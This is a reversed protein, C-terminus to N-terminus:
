SGSRHTASGPSVVVITPSSQCHKHNTFSKELNCKRKTQLFARISRSKSCLGTDPCQKMTAAGNYGARSHSITVQALRCLQQTRSSTELNGKFYTTTTLYKTLRLMANSEQVPSMDRFDTKCSPSSHSIHDFLLTGAGQGAYGHTVPLAHCILSSDICDIM